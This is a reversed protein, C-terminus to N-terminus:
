EGTLVEPSDRSPSNGQPASILGEWACLCVPASLSMRIHLAMYGHHWKQGSHSKSRHETFATHERLHPLHTRTHSHLLRQHLVQTVRPHLLLMHSDFCRSIVTGLCTGDGRVARQEMKQYFWWEQGCGMTIMSRARMCSVRSVKGSM